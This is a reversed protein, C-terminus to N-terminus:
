FMGYFLALAAGFAYLNTAGATESTLFNAFPVTVASFQIMTDSTMSRTDKGFSATITHDVYDFDFDDTTDAVNPPTQSPTAVSAQWNRYVTGRVRVCAVATASLVWEEICLNTGTAQDTPTSTSRTKETTDTWWNDQTDTQTDDYASAPKLDKIHDAGSQAVDTKVGIWEVYSSVPVNNGSDAKVATM